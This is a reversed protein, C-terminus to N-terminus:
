PAAEPAAAAPLWSAGYALSAAGLLEGRAIAAVLRKLCRPCTVAAEDYASWGASRRGYTAGCLARGWGEPLAHARRGRDSEFGNACRGTLQVARITAAPDLRRGRTDYIPRM